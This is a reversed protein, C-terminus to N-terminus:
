SMKFLIIMVSDSSLSFVFFCISIWIINVYQYKIIIYHFVVNSIANHNNDDNSNRTVILVWMVNFSKKKVFSFKIWFIIMILMLWLLQIDKYPKKSQIRSCLNKPIDQVYRIIIVDLRPHLITRTPVIIINQLPQQKWYCNTKEQM